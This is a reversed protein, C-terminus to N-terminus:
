CAGLFDNEALAGPPRLAEAPLAASRQAYLGIGLGFLAVGGATRAMDVLFRRRAANTTQTAM